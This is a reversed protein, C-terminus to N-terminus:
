RRMVWRLRPTPLYRYQSGPAQHHPEMGAPVNGHRFECAVILDEKVGYATVAQYDTEGSYTVCTERKRSEVVNTDLDLM